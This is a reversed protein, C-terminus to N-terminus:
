YEWRVEGTRQEPGGDPPLRLSHRGPEGHEIRLGETYGRVRATIWYNCDPCDLRIERWPESM